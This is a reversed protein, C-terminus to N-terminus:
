WRDAGAIGEGRSLKDSVVRRGRGRKDGRQQHDAMRQPSVRQGGGGWGVGRVRVGWHHWETTLPEMAGGGGEVVGGVECEVRRGGEDGM